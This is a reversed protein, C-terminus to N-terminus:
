PLSTPRHHRGGPDTEPRPETRGQGEAQGRREDERPLTRPLLNSFDGAREDPTPVFSIIGAPTNRLRTGQLM